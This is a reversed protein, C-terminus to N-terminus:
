MCNTRCFRSSSPLGSAYDRSLDVSGLPTRREPGGAQGWAGRCVIMGAHRNRLILIVNQHDAGPMGAGLRPPPRAARRRVASSVVFQSVTPWILQLGAM